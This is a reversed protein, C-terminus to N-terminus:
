FHTVEAFAIIREITNARAKVDKVLVIESIIWKIVHNSWESIKLINPAKLKKDNGMWNLDVFERPELKRFLASEILTLQRALELPDIDTFKLAVLSSESQAHKLVKPVKPKPADNVPEFSPFDSFRIKSTVIEQIQNNPMVDSLENLLDRLNENEEFDCWYKKTWIKLTQIIRVVPSLNCRFARKFSSLSTGKESEKM